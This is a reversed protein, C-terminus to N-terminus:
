TSARRVDGTRMADAADRKARQAQQFALESRVMADPVRGAAADGPVVNVHLPITATHTELTSVDIWRLELQCVQALGLATMAPVDITLLLKRREGAYFDGLEVAFGGEIAAAPLDNFLHVAEVAGTPRVTLSAAQVIQELLHEVESAVAAGAADGEEAFHTNGQGGRAIGALLAEDYGLGLGITSSTVGHGNAATAARELQAHHTIGVNAHGDSLLLLTAGRDGKARRAEQDGRLLGGSLNTTAGPYLGRILHRIQEKDVLPAAPVAIEVADDFTVLGFNDAPDLRSILAELADKAAELRGDTM